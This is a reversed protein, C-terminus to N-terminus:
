IVLPAPLPKWERRRVPDFRLVLIQPAVQTGGSASGIPLYSLPQVLDFRLSVIPNQPRKFTQPCYANNGTQTPAFLTPQSAVNRILGLVVGSALLPCNLTQTQNRPGFDLGSLVYLAGSDEGYLVSAGSNVACQLSVNFHTITPDIWSEKLVSRLDFGDFVFSSNWANLFASAPLSATALVAQYVPYESNMYTRQAPITSIFPKLIPVIQFVYTQQPWVKNAVTNIGIGPPSGDLLANLVTMELRTIGDTKHFSQGFSLIDLNLLNNPGSFASTQVGMVRFRKSGFWQPGGCVLFRVREYESAAYYGTAAPQVFAAVAFLRQELILHFADCRRWMEDGVVDHFNVSWAFGLNLGPQLDTEDALLSNLILRTTM